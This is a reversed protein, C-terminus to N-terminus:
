WMRQKQDDKWPWPSKKKREAGVSIELRKEASLSESHKGYFDSYHVCAPSILLARIMLFVHRDNMISTRCYFSTWAPYYWWHDFVVQLKLTKIVLAISILKCVTNYQGETNCQCHIQSLNKHSAALGSWVHKVVDLALEHEQKLM